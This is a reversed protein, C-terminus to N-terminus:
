VTNQNLLLYLNTLEYYNEHFPLFMSKSATTNKFNFCNHEKVSQLINIWEHPSLNIRLLKVAYLM